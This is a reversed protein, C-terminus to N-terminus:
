NHCPVLLYLLVVITKQIFAYSVKKLFAMGTCIGAFAGGMAAGLLAGDIGELLHGFSFSYIILRVLDVVIAIMGSTGIFAEKDLKARVLFASRFAGQNGSL